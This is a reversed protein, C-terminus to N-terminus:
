LIATYGTNWPRAGILHALPAFTLVVETHAPKWRNMLCFLDAGNWDANLTNVTVTWYMRNEPPGLQWRMKGDNDTNLNSTDGTRSVGAMYPAYERITIDQGTEAAKAIFFARSQEGLFTMKAVLNERRLALNDIPIPMCRDPLGFAREWDDLMVNTLRPDSETQLLLAALTEVSEGWVGSLGFVVKQLVSGNHRPWAIGQPLLQNFAVQYDTASRQTWRDQTM